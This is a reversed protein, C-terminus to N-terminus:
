RLSKSFARAIMSRPAPVVRMLPFHVRREGSPSGINLRLIFILSCSMSVVVSTSPNYSRRGSAGAVMVRVMEPSRMWVCVVGGKWTLCPSEM